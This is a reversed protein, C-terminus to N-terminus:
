SFYPCFFTPGSTQGIIKAVLKGIHKESFNQEAQLKKKIKKTGLIMRYLNKCTNSKGM